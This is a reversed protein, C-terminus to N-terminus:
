GARQAAVRARRERPTVAAEDNFALRATPRSRRESEYLAAARMYGAALAITLTARAGELVPNWAAMALCIAVLASGNLVLEPSRLNRWNKWFLAGVVIPALISMRLTVDLFSSHNPVEFSREARLSYAWRVVPDRMTQVDSYSTGFGIGLPHTAINTIAGHWLRSRVLTNGDSRVLEEVWAPPFAALFIFIVLAAALAIVMRRDGKVLCTASLALQIIINSAAGLLPLPVLLLLSRAYHNSTLSTVVAFLALQIAMAPAHVGYLRGDVINSDEPRFIVASALAVAGVVALVLPKLRPVLLVRSVQVFAPYTAVLVLLGSVQHSIASRRVLFGDNPLVSALSLVLYIAVLLVLAVYERPVFMAPNTLRPLLVIFSALVVCGGYIVPPLDPSLAYVFVFFAFAIRREWVSINSFSEV